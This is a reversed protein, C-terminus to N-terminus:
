HFKERKQEFFTYARVDKLNIYSHGQNLDKNFSDSSCSLVSINPVTNYFFTLIIINLIINDRATYLIARVKLHWIIYQESCYEEIDYM